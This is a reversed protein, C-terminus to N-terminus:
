GVVLIFPIGKHGTPLPQEPHTGFTHHFLRLVFCVVFIKPSHLLSSDGFPFIEPRWPISATSTTVGSSTSTKWTEASFPQYMGM